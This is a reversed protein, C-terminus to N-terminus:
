ALITVYLSFVYACRKKVIKERIILCNLGLTVDLTFMFVDIIFIHQSMIAFEHVALISIVNHHYRYGGDFVHMMHM